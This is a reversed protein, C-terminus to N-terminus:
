PEYPRLGEVVGSPVTLHVSHEDVSKLWAAPVLKRDPLLRHSVLLHSVKDSDAELFWREVYGVHKGDSAIVKGGKKLVIAHEAIKHTSDVAPWTFPDLGYDPYGAHGLPPVWYYAPSSTTADKAAQQGQIDAAPVYHKEEFPPLKNFDSIDQNLEVRDTSATRVMTMPVVKDESLLRGKKVVIHTVENTAPDLVLRDLRGVRQGSSTFVGTGEKLQLM